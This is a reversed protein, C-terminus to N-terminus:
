QAINEYKYIKNDMQNKDSKDACLTKKRQECGVKEDLVVVLCLQNVLAPYESLRGGSM